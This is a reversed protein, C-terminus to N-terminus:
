AEDRQIEERIMECLVIVFMKFTYEKKKHLNWILLLFMSVVFYFLRIVPNKSKTKIRAQDHVRFMTEINWRQKYLYIYKEAKRFFINSAFVWDYDNVNKVLAIDTNAIHSSKNKTYRIEHKIVAIKNIAELMCKFTKSKKAFILYNVDQLELEDIVEGSYFGRDLLVTKINLGLSRCIKIIEGLYEAKFSGITLITVYFPIIKNRFLIGAVLYRYKGEVGKEGTWPHLYLGDIKGYFDEETIDAVIKVAGLRIKKITKKLCKTNEKTLTEVYNKDLNYHLCDAKNSVTEVYTNSESAKMLPTKVGEPISFSKLFSGFEKRVNKM